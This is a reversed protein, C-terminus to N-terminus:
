LRVQAVLGPVGGDETDLRAVKGAACVDDAVTALVGLMDTEARVLVSSVDARMSLKAESKAKRIAAIVQSAV